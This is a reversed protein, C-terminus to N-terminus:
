QGTLTRGGRGHSGRASASGSQRRRKKTDRMCNPAHPDCSPASGSVRALGNWCDFDCRRCGFSGAASDLSSREACRRCLQYARGGDTALVLLVFCGDSVLRNIRM